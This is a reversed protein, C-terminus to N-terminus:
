SSKFAAIRIVKLRVNREVYFGEVTVLNVVVDGDRGSHNPQRSGVLIPVVAIIKNRGQSGRKLELFDSNRIQFTASPNVRDFLTNNQIQDSSRRM